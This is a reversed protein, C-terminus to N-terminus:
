MIKMVDKMVDGSMVIEALFYEGKEFLQGVEKMGVSLGENVIDWASIGDELCQNVAEICADSNFDIIAQAAKQLAEHM